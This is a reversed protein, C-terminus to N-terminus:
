SRAEPAHVDRFALMAAVRGEREPDFGCAGDFDRPNRYTGFLMDWVPLDGYNGAHRGREHHIRHMEPRQVFWGLWRPTRVNVHYVFEAAAALLTYVEGGEPTLGLLLFAIAASLVSNAIQEVPHKYFSTLVEIRQPSHHLQHVARWLVPSEHRARHWFYYVFTSVGYAIVGGTVPGTIRGLNVLAHGRFWRDWSIGALAVVALQMANAFIVRTWWDSV